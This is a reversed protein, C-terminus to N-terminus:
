PMHAKNACFQGNGVETLVKGDGEEKEKEVSLVMDYKIGVMDTDIKLQQDALTM